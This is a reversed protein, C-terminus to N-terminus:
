ANIKSSANRYSDVLSWYLIGAIVCYVYHFFTFYASLPGELDFLWEQLLISKLLYGCLIIRIEIAGFFCCCREIRHSPKTSYYACIGETAARSPERALPAVLPPMRRVWVRRIDLHRQKYNHTRSYPHENTATILISFCMQEGGVDEEM